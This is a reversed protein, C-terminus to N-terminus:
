YCWVNAGGMAGTVISTGMGGGSINFKLNENETKPAKALVHFTLILKTM